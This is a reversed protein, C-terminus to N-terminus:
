LFTRVIVFVLLVFSLVLLVQKAVFMWARWRYSFWSKKYTYKDAVPESHARKAALYGALYQLYDAGMALLAMLGAAILLPKSPPTPLAPSDKGGVVLLWVFAIVSLGITRVLTSIQTSTAKLEDLIDKETAM